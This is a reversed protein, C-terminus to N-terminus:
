QVYNIIAGCQLRWDTGWAADAEAQSSKGQINITQTNRWSNFAWGGMTAVSAPITISTLGTCGAFAGSKISTVSAPILINTLKTCVAFADHDITTVGTPITITGSRGGPVQILTDKTKDYLLGDESAYNPNDAAVTLATLSDCNEFAWHDISTVSAPITITGTLSPCRGFAISGITTVNPPITISTLGSYMFAQSGITTVSTPITISKLNTCYYFAGTDITKLQSGAAFNVTTLAVPFIEDGAFAFFGITTVSAPITVTDVGGPAQILTTKAKNYLIGDESAYNPNNAAVTIGTLDTCVAFASYDITTVSAPITISTLGSCSFANSGIFTVSASISVDTLNSCQSFANDGISTVGTPITVGTISTDSFAGISYANTEDGDPSSGIETVPLGNYTAPIIVRGSTVIGKRVRYATGGNILEYALGPTGAGGDDGSGSGGRKVGNYTGTIYSPSHLSLIMTTNSTLTATGISQSWGESYLTGVNGNLFFTGSDTYGAGSFTYHNGAVIVTANQGSINIDWIGDPPYEKEADGDKDEDKSTVQSMRITITDTQGANIDVSRSGTAYHDNEYYADVKINWLGPAVSFSATTRGSTLTQKQTDGFGTVTIHHTLLNRTAPDPPYMVDRSQSSGICIIITGEKEQSLDFCSALALIFVLSFVTKSFKEIFKRLM